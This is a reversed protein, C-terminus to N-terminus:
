NSKIIAKTFYAMSCRGSSYESGDYTSMESIALKKLAYIANKIENETVRYEEM